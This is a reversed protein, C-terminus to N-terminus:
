SSSQDNLVVRERRNHLFPEILQVANENIGNNKYKYLLGILSMTDKVLNAKELFNTIFKDNVLLPPIIPIKKSNAFTKLIPWYTKSSTPPNALKTSLKLNGM